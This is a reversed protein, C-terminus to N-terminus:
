IKVISSIGILSQSNYVKIVYVGSALNVLKIRGSDLNDAELCQGSYNYIEYHTNEHDSEIMIHDSAPNPYIQYQNRDNTAATSTLCGIEIEEHSNCGTGNDSVTLFQPTFSLLNCVAKQSCADLMPNNKLQLGFISDIENLVSIDTLSSCDFITLNSISSLGKFADINTLFPLDELWVNRLPIGGLGEMGIVNPCEWMRFQALLDIVENMNSLDVNQVRLFKVSVLNNFQSDSQFDFSDMYSLDLSLLSDEVIHDAIHQISSITKNAAISIRKIISNPNLGALNMDEIISLSTAQKLNELGRLDILEPCDRISLQGEITELSSLGLLNKLLPNVVFSINCVYELNSLENVNEIELASMDLSGGVYKLNELGTLDKIDCNGISLFDDIYKLNSLAQLNDIDGAIRLALISDCNPYLIPFSDVDSQSVFTLEETPCQLYVPSTFLLFFLLHTLKMLSNATLTSHALADM